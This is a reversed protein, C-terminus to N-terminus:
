IDVKNLDIIQYDHTVSIGGDFGSKHADNIIKTATDKGPLHTLFLQKAAAKRAIEGAQFPNLHGPQSMDEGIVAAAECLFVDASIAAEVLGDCPGADGSYTFVTDDLKCRFAYAEMKGFDHFVSYPTVTISDSITIPMHSKLEQFDIHLVPRVNNDYAGASTKMTLLDTCRKEIHTPGYISLRKTQQHKRARVYLSQLLPDIAFHDAHFHSIIITDIDYYDIKLHNLRYRIGESCDFLINHGAYQLLHGAPHRFDFRRYYSSVCTGSGLVTLKNQM